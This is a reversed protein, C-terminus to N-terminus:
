KMGKNRRDDEAVRDDAFFDSPKAAGARTADRMVKTRRGLSQFALQAGDGDPAFAQTSGHGYGVSNAEDYADPGAGLYVFTWGKAEKAQVFEKLMTVTHRTSANEHGDTFTVLLYSETENIKALERERAAAAQIMTVSADILPTGGRPEFTGATLKPVQTIPTATCLVEFPNQSDFQILTLLADPGDAQLEKVFQNFGGIVDDAMSAMSGSRDLLFFIHTNV